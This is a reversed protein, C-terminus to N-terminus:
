SESRLPTSGCIGCIRNHSLQSSQFEILLCQRKDPSMQVDFDQKIRSDRMKAIECGFAGDRELHIPIQIRDQGIEDFLM